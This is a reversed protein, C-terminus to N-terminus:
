SSSSMGSSEGVVRWGLYVFGRISLWESWGTDPMYDRLDGLRIHVPKTGTFWEPGDPHDSTEFREWWEPTSAEPEGIGFEILRRAAEARSIHKRKAYDDVRQQQRGLNISVPTGITPRGM